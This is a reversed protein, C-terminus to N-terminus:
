IHIEMRAKLRNLFRRLKQNAIKGSQRIQNLAKRPKGIKYLSSGLWALAKSKLDKKLGLELAREYNPIAEKERGNNDHFLGLEYYAVAKTKNSKAKIIAERLKKINRRRM